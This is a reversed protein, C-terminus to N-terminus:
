KRGLFRFTPQTRATRKLTDIEKLQENATISYVPYKVAIKGYNKHLNICHLFLRPEPIVDGDLYFSIDAKSLKHGLNRAMSRRGPKDEPLRYFYAGFQTALSKISQDSSQDDICIVELNKFTSASISKLIWNLSFSNNHCPIIISIDPSTKM